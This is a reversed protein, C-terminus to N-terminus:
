HDEEELWKNVLEIVQNLSISSLADRDEEKLNIPPEEILYHELPDCGNPCPNEFDVPVSCVECCIEVDDESVAVEEL